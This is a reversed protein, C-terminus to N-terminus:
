PRITGITQLVADDHGPDVSPEDNAAATPRLDHGGLQAGHQGRARRDVKMPAPVIGPEKLPPVPGRVVLADFDDLLRNRAFSRRRTNGEDDIRGVLMPTGDLAGEVGAIVHDAFFRQRERPVVRDLQQSARSREAQPEEAGVGVQERVVQVDQPTLPQSVCRKRVKLENPGIRVRLDPVALRLAVVGTHRHDEIDQGVHCADDEGGVSPQCEITRADLDRLAAARHDRMEFAAV